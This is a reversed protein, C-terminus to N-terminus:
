VFTICIHTGTPTVLFCFVLWSFVLYRYLAHFYYCAWENVRRNTKRNKNAGRRFFYRATHTLYFHPDQQHLATWCARACERM